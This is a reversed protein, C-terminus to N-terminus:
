LKAEYLVNARRRWFAPAARFRAVRYWNFCERDRDSGLLLQLAVVLGPAVRGRLWVLVHWGRRTRDVRVAAPVLGLRQLTRWTGQWWDRPLPGDLDVLIPTV